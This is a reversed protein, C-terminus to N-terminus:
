RSIRYYNLSLVVSNYAFSSRIIFLRQKYCEEFNSNKFLIKCHVYVFINRRFNPV